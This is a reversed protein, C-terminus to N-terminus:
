GQSLGQQIEDTKFQGIKGMPFQILFVHLRILFRIRHHHQGGYVLSSKKM